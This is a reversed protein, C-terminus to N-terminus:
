LSQPLIKDSKEPALKIAILSGTYGAYRSEARIVPLFIMYMSHESFFPKIGAIGLSFTSTKIRQLGFLGVPATAVCACNFDNTSYACFCLATMIKSAAYESYMLSADRGFLM